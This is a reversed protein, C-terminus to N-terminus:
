FETSDSHTGMVDRLVDCIEQESAYAAAAAIIPPMLNDSGRAAEHVASLAQTVADKDRESKVSALRECQSRQVAEDIKLLPIASGEDEMEFRNLGVMVRDGRDLARQFAYASGAIERQPYGQEVAVVMGGMGDIREIYEMAEAELKDTLWEVYYSGGLPDITNAVGTEHAVIQQTRLAITVSAETPLAYTEDLSNTHL